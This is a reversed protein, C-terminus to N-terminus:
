RRAGSQTKIPAQVVAGAMSRAHNQHLIGVATEEKARSASLKRDADRFRKTKRRLAPDLPSNDLALVVQQAAEQLARAESLKLSKKLNVWWTPTADAMLAELYEAGDDGQILAQLEEITYSVSNSLRSKASREGIGFLDGIYAWAKSGAPKKFKIINTVAVQLASVTRIKHNPTCTQAGGFNAFDATTGSATQM